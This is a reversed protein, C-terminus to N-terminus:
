FNIRAGFTYTGHSPYVYNDIGSAIPTGTVEPTFGNYTFFTYPSQATLYFRINKVIKKFNMTYGLTINQLRLFSGDEVFFSNAQEIFGNGYAEASPYTNSHNTSTWRNEYFNLDYNGEPFIDRNMRKANLIKNGCEGQLTVSFDLQKYNLGVNLGGMLKPIPSGLFVKDNEDIVKDGNQDKYKFYGADMISQSVGSQLADKESQYVGDIEYGYFSGIAQGVQTRTTYNGRVEGGPIFSRNELELVKNHITTLNLGINYKLDKTIKDSWNLTLEFGSNLVKGNNALLYATGGGSAIPSEFVVNNTVRHYYDMEGTLRNDLMSFDAGLDTETVVEWKLYNRLVTLAGQGDVLEDGFIASSETGTTGLTVSSNAPVNDNGLMGWSARLKLNQFLKQKQMFNEGTMVWGLGVSPFYGWKQQYKSSGDARFTVTALYKSDYNYTGRMFASVGNYRTGGDYTNRGSTQTNVLYQAQEDYGPAGLGYGTLYQSLYMRTSQGLMLSYNNKGIQDHWTLLNDLIQNTTFTATKTLQSKNASQSGGVLFSPIYVLESEYSIDQNYSTKFTLKDPIISFEMFANFILDTNKKTDENYYAAAYPNGYSNGYGYTQPSGFKIPYADTNNNDYVSYLPPNVFAQFFASTYPVNTTSKSLISNVGVKLWNYVQQEFRGRLNLRSYDNTTAMIGDQYLYNTGFSYNSTKTRGSVDLNQSHMLAYSKLLASYWDTSAPYDSAVKPIYGDTNVNAENLLEIYQSTNTLKMINVPVQAAIYGEYTISPHTGTGRKTTIIIVGNAARVGYIAASSADKLITVDAIDSPSLFDINDTFAGDVVYLPKAYDGISGVGRIKVTGSSGPTGDSIVQVGAVKGQLAQTANTTIQKALDDGKVVTIPATLDKAKQTGYGVVVVENLNTSTPTMAIILKSNDGTTIKYDDYGVYSVTLSAGKAVKISFHGELDTITGNSTGSEIISAGILPENNTKDTVTGTYVTQATVFVTICFM